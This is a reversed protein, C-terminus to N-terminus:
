LFWLQWFPTADTRAGKRTAWVDCTRNWKTVGGRIGRHKCIRLKRFRSSSVRQTRVARLHSISFPYLTRPSQGPDTKNAYHWATLLWGSVRWMHRTFFLDATKM